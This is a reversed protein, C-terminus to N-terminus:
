DMFVHLLKLGFPRDFGRGHLVRESLGAGYVSRAAIEIELLFSEGFYVLFVRFFLVQFRNTRIRDQHGAHSLSDRHGGCGLWAQNGYYNLKQLKLKRNQFDLRTRAIVGSQDPLYHVLIAM